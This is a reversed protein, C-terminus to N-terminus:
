QDNSTLQVDSGTPNTLPTNKFEVKTFNLSVSETPLDGGSGTQQVSSIVVNEFDITLLTENRSKDQGDDPVVAVISLVAHKIHTGGACALFLKTTAKDLTKTFHLDHLQPRGAGAGGTAAGRTIDSIGWGFSALEIEGKHDLNTSEGQIGDIKLFTDVAAHCQIASAANLALAAAPLILLRPTM